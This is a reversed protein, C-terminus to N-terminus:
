NQYSILYLNFPKKHKSNEKRIWNNWFSKRLFIGEVNSQKAGKDLIKQRYIYQGM